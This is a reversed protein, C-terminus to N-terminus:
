TVPLALPLPPEVEEPKRQCVWLGTLVCALATSLVAALPFPVLTLTDPLFDEAWEQTIARHGQWALVSAVLLLIKVRTV